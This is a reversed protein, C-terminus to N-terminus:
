VEPIALDDPRTQTPKEILEPDLEEMMRLCLEARRVRERGLRIATDEIHKGTPYIGPSNRIGLKIYMPAAARVMQPVEYFRVFGGQDDPVEVYVDLPASTAARIEGLQEVALDTAVNITGAGLGELTRATAPNAVPLLVSTKLLLNSPLENLARAENLVALVGVDAVLLSRIGLECARKAEALCAALDANGRASGAHSATTMAQGGTSWAGRPGLFLNVEIGHQAGLRAMEAIEVDTLMMVGSGQSVRRVAVEREEAEELVARLVAPGETSPIEIRYRAGDSFRAESDGPPRDLRYGTAALARRIDEFTV